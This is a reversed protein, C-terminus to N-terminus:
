KSRSCSDPGTAPPSPRQRASGASSARPSPQGRLLPPVRHAKQKGYKAEDASPQRYGRQASVRLETALGEMVDAATVALKASSRRSALPSEPATRQTQPTRTVADRSGGSKIRREASSIHRARPSGKADASRSRSVDGSSISSRTNEVGPKSARPPKPLRRPSQSERISSTGSIAGSAPRSIKTTIPTNEQQPTAETSEDLSLELTSAVVAESPIVPQPPKPRRQKASSPTPRVAVKVKARDAVVDAKAAARAATAEAKAAAKDASAQAQLQMAIAAKKRAEEFHRRDDTQARLIAEGRQRHEAEAQSLM